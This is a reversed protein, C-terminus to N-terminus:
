LLAARVTRRSIILGLGIACQIEAALTNWLAMDHCYFHAMTLIPGGIVSPSGVAPPEVVQALFAHSYMYSQFQLLGDLLWICGLAVQIGRRTIRLRSRWPAGVSPARAATQTATDEHMADVGM